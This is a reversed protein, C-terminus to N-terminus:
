DGDDDPDEVLVFLLFDRWSEHLAYRLAAQMDRFDIKL